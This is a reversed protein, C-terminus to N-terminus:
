ILSNYFKKNSPDNIDLIQPRMVDELVCVDYLENDPSSFKFQHEIKFTELNIIFFGCIAELGRKKLEDGLPLEKFTNEHRDESTGVVLHTNKIFSLGRLYGPIWLVRILEQKDFDVYGIWGTGAELIWLKGLFWRPSHPMSLGQCVLKDNVIDYVIGKGVRNYRWSGKADGMCVSTIYRPQGNRSCVGNLHCRDEPAVKSIWPPKWYVKFSHTDSPQCICSFMASCYYPKDKDDLCIDHADIDNSFYAMQSLYTADFTGFNVTDPFEGINTYKWLNGSSSIWITKKSVHMGMPRNFNSLFISLKDSQDRNDYITGIAYIHATKYSSVLISIKQSKLFAILNESYDVPKKSSINDVNNTALGFDEPKNQMIDNLISNQTLESLNLNISM